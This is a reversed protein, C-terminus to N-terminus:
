LALDIQRNVWPTWRICLVPYSPDTAMEVYPIGQDSPVLSFEAIEVPAPVSIRSCRHLKLSLDRQADPFKKLLQVKIRRLILFTAIIGPQGVVLLMRDEQSEGVCSGSRRLSPSRDDPIQSRDTKCTSYRNPSEAVFQTAAPMEGPPRKTKIEHLCIANGRTFM